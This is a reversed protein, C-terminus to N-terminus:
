WDGGMWVFFAVFLAFVGLMVTLIHEEAGM